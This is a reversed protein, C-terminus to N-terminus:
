QRAAKPRQTTKENLIYSLGRQLKAALDSTEVAAYVPKGSEEGLWPTRHAWASAFGKVLKSAITSTAGSTCDSPVLGFEPSAHIYLSHQPFNFLLDCLQL